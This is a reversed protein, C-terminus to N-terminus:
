EEVRRAVLEDRIPAQYLRQMLETASERPAAAIDSLPEDPREYRTQLGELNVVALGGLKSLAVAFPVDVVGDMASAIIPIEFRQGGVSWSLNVDDPHLTEVGPVIAVDDFGYAPRLRSPPPAEFAGREVFQERVATTM